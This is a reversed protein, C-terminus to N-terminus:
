SAASESRLPAEPQGSEQLPKPQGGAVASEQLPQLQGGAVAANDKRRDFGWMERYKRLSELEAEIGNKLHILVANTVEGQHAVIGCLSLVGSTVHESIDFEEVVEVASLVGEDLFQGDERETFQLTRIIHSKTLAREVFWLAKQMDKIPSVGPKKGARMIYKMATFLHGTFGYDELVEIGPKGTKGVYHSPNIEDYTKTQENM